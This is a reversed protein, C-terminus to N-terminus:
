DRDRRREVHHEKRRDDVEDRDRRHRRDKSDSDYQSRRHHRDDNDDRGRSKKEKRREHDGRESHYNRDRRGYGDHDRERRRDRDRSRSRDRRSSEYKRDERARDSDRHRHSRSSEEDGGHPKREKKDRWDDGVFDKQKQREKHQEETLEEGTGRNRFVFPNYEAHKKNKSGKGWAGLEELGNPIKKAGIGLFAPKLGDEEPDLGRPKKKKPDDDAKPKWGMGRLMAEGFIAIPVADYDISASDPRSAVDSRFIDEERARPALQRNGPEDSAIVLGSWQKKGLLAEVAEEDETKPRDEVVTSTPETGVDIMRVDGNGNGTESPQQVILGYSQKHEEVEEHKVGESGEGERRAQEEKPLLNKSRKQQAEGRWDRNKQALIVLPAQKPDKDGDLAVAGGASHDFSSVLQSKGDTEDQEGGSDDAALDSYPRKKGKAKTSTATKLSGFSISIPKPKTPQAGEQESM